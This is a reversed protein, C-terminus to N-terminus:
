FFCSEQRSGTCILGHGMTAGIPPQMKACPHRMQSGLMPVRDRPGRVVHGPVDFRKAAQRTSWAPAPPSKVNQEEDRRNPLVGASEPRRIVRMVTKRVATQPRVSADTALTNQGGGGRVTALCPSSTSSSIRGQRLPESAHQQEPVKSWPGGIVGGCTTDALTGRGGVVVAERADADSYGQVGPGHRFASPTNHIGPSESCQRGNASMSSYEKWSMGIAREATPEATKTKGKCVLTVGPSCEMTEILPPQNTPLQRFSDEFKEQLECASQRPRLKKRGISRNRTQRSEPGAFSDLGVRKEPPAQGKDATSSVEGEGDNLGHPIVYGLVSLVDPLSKVDPEDVFVMDGYSDFTYQKDSMEEFWAELKRANEAEEQLAIRKAEDQQVRAEDREVKLLRHREEEEDVVVDDKMLWCARKVNKTRVLVSVVKGSAGSKVSSTESRTAVGSSRRQPPEPVLLRMLKRTPATGNENATPKGLCCKTESGPDQQLGKRMLQMAAWSDTVPAAPEAEAVWGALDDGEDHPVFVMQVDSYSSEISKSVAFPYAERSIRNEVLRKGCDDIIKEMITNATEESCAWRHAHDAM